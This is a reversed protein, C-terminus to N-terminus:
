CEMTFGPFKDVKGELKMGLHQWSLHNIGERLFYNLPEKLVETFEEQLKLIGKNFSRVKSVTYSSRFLKMGDNAECKKMKKWMIILSWIWRDGKRLNRSDHLVNMQLFKCQIIMWYGKWKRKLIIKRMLFNVLICKWKQTNWNVSKGCNQSNNCLCRILDGERKQIMAKNKLKEAEKNKWKM